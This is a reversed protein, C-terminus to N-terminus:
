KNGNLVSGLNVITANMMRAYDLQSKSDAEKEQMQEEQLNSITVHMMKSYDLLSTLDEAQNSLEEVKMRLETNEEIIQALSRASVFSTSAEPAKTNSLASRNSDKNEAAFSIGAFLLLAAISTILKKM